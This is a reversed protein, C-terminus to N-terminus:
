NSIDAAVRNTILHQMKFISRDSVFRQKKAYIPKMSSYMEECIKQGKKIAKINLKHYHINNVYQKETQPAGYILTHQKDTIHHVM